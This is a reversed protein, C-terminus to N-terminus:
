PKSANDMVNESTYFPENDFLNSEETSKYYDPNRLQKTMFESKNYVTYVHLKNDKGIDSKLELKNKSILKAVDEKYELKMSKRSGFNSNSESVVWYYLSSTNETNKVDTHGSSQMYEFDVIKPNSSVIQVDENKELYMVIWKEDVKAQIVFNGLPLKKLGIKTTNSDVMIRDTYDDSFIDVQKIRSNKCELLLSDRNQSLSQILENARSNVNKQFTIQQGYVMISSM